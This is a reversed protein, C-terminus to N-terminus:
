NLRRKLQALAIAAENHLAQGSPARELCMEYANRAAGLIGGAENLRALDLWLEPRAPAVLVMRRSLELAREGDGAGLARMKLNNQLRLLVDTDSVLQALGADDPRLEVPLHERDVSQGGHFPDLTLDDGRHSLRLVFHSQTNLGNALMGGARAAHMYLIGLAVPLGRRRDIVAMMDANRPDDYQMRDGDYGLRGVLLEVLSRAGDGVRLLMGAEARMAAEIEDLHALYPALSRKPRDLAALMLAARAIDHPGDGSQGLRQLFEVPENTM